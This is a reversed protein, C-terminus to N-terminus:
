AGTYRRRKYAYLAAAYATDPMLDYDFVYAIAGPPSNPSDSCVLNLGVATNEAVPYPYDGYDVSVVDGEACFYHRNITSSVEPSSFDGTKVLVVNPEVDSELQLRYSKILICQDATAAIVETSGGATLTGTAITM